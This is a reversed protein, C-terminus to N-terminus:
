FRPVWVPSGTPNTPKSRAGGQSNNGDPSVERNIRGERM